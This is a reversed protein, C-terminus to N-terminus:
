SFSARAQLRSRVYILRRSRPSLCGDSEVIKVIALSSDSFGDTIMLSTSFSLLLFPLSLSSPPM